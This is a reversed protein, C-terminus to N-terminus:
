LAQAALFAKLSGSIPQLGRAESVWESHADAVRWPASQHAPEAYAIGVRPGVRLGRVAGGRRLTLGGSQFLPTGSFTTDIGLAAGV